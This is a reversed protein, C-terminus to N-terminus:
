AWAVPLREIKGGRALFDESTMLPPPAPKERRVCSPQAKMLRLEHQTRQRDIAQHVAKRKAKLSTDLKAAPKRGPKKAPGKGALRAAKRAARVASWEAWSMGGAAQARKRALENVRDRRQQETLPAVPRPARVPWYTRANKLGEAAFLGQTCMAALSWCVLRVNEEGIGEAYQRATRPGDQTAIWDRLQQCRNKKM